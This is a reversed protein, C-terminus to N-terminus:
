NAKIDYKCPDLDFKPDRLASSWGYPSSDFSMSTSADFDAKLVSTWASYEDSYESGDVGKASVKVKYKLWGAFQKQYILNVRAFGQADTKSIGNAFQVIADSKRPDLRGNGNGGQTSSYPITNSDEDNELYGNRNRDENFCAWYTMDSQGLSKRAGNRAFVIYNNTDVSLDYYTGVAYAVLDLTATLDVNPKPNGAADAVQILFSQTYRDNVDDSELKSHASVTVAVPQDVVTFKAIVSKACADTSSAPLEVASNAYCVEVVQGDTVSGISGPTYVATIQGNADSYLVKGENELVGGIKNPDKLRFIVPVNALRQNSNGIFTAKVTVFNSTSNNSNTAVTNPNVQISSSINIAPNIPSPGAADVIPVSISAKSGITEINFNVATGASPATYNVTFVGQSDTNGVQISNDTTVTVPINVIPAGQSDVLTFSVKGPKSPSIVAPNAVSTIKSGRIEVQTSAVMGTNTKAYVNIIRNTRNQGPSVYFNMGAPVSGSGDSTKNQDPGAGNAFTIVADPDSTSVNIPIGSLAIGNTDKVLVNISAKATLNSDLVPNANSIVLSGIVASSSGGSSDGSCEKANPYLCKGAESTGGGGCNSLILTSVFLLLLEKTPFLKKM